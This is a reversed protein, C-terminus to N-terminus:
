PITRELVKLKVDTGEVNEVTDAAGVFGMKEYFAIAPLNDNENSVYLRKVNKDRAIEKLKNIMTSFIGIGQYKPHIAMEWFQISMEEEPDMTFLFDLYGAPQGGAYAAITWVKYDEHGYVYGPSPKWEPQLLELKDPPPWGTMDEL